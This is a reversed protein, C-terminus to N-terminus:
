LKVNDNKEQSSLRIRPSINKKSIMLKKERYQPDVSGNSDKSANRKKHMKKVFNAFEKEYNQEAKDKAELKEKKKKSDCYIVGYLENLDLNGESPASASGDDSQNEEENPDQGKQIKEFATTLEEVTFFQRWDDKPGDDEQEREITGAEYSSEVEETSQLSKFRGQPKATQPKAMGESEIM